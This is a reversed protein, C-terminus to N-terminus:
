YTFMILINCLRHHERCDKFESYSKKTKEIQSSIQLGLPQKEKKCLLIHAVYGARNASSACNMWAQVNVTLCVWLLLFDGFRDRCNLFM